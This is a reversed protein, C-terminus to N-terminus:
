YDHGSKIRKRFKHKKITILLVIFIFIFYSKRLTKKCKFSTKIM